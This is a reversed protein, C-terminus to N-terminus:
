THRLLGTRLAFRVLDPRRTLGLKRATRARYTEVTKASLFLKEGIEAATYGEATLAVVERERPTLSGLAADAEGAGAAHYQKILLANAHPTLYVEGRAVCRIAEILDLDASSKRVFGSGGSNIVPLLYEEEPHMTLVLLRTDLGLAALRRIAGLGGVGGPMSLDIVAVDPAQERIKRIAEEGNTAEGVLKMDPEAELLARLGTRLIGHDDVIVIRVQASPTTM